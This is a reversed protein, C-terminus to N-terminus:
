EKDKLVPTLILPSVGFLSLASIIWKDIEDPTFYMVVAAIIAVVTRTLDSRLFNIVKDGGFVKTCIILIIAVAVLVASIIYFITDM